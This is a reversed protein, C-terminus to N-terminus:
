GLTPQGHLIVMIKPLRTLCYIEICHLANIKTGGLWLFLPLFSAVPFATPFPPLTFVGAPPMGPLVFRPKRSM